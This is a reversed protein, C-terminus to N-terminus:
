ARQAETVQPHTVMAVNGAQLQRRVIKGPRDGFRRTLRNDRCHAGGAELEDGDVEGANLGAGEGQRQDLHM